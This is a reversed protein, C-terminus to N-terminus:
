DRDTSREVTKVGSTTRCCQKFKGQLANQLSDQALTTTSVTLYQTCLHDCSFYSLSVRCDFAACRTQTPHILLDEQANVSFLMMLSSRHRRTSRAIRRSVEHPSYEDDSGFTSPESKSSTNRSDDESSGEEYEEGDGTGAETPM